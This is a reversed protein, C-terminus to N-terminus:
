TCTLLLFGFSTWLAARRLSLTFHCFPCAEQPKMARGDQGKDVKRSEPLRELWKWPRPGWRATFGPILVAEDVPGHGNQSLQWQTPNFMGGGTMDWSTSRESGGVPSWSSLISQVQPAGYGVMNTFILPKKDCCQLATLWKSVFTMM